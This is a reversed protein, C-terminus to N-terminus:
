FLFVKLQLQILAIKQSASSWCPLSDENSRWWELIDISPSIGSLYIPLEQKLSAIAVSDFFPIVALSDIDSASPQIENIKSPMFYRAAKFVNLPSLSDDGFKSQFYLLADKVCHLAYSTWQQQSLSNGGALMRSIAEIHPYHAVQIVSQLKIIEEYCKVALFGDGELNYTSKVFHEGVYM